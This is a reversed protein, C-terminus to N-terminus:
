HPKLADIRQQFRRLKAEVRESHSRLADIDDFFQQVQLPHPLLRSEELLFDELQRRLNHGSTKLWHQGSRLGRGIQHGVVDGFAEALPREWDLDLDALIDRLQLLAQTDGNVTVDGNILAAGPDSATAIAAFERWRGRLRTTAAAGDGPLLQLRRGSVGIGLQLDPEKLELIFRCGELEGLRVATASDLSLARNVMNELSSVALGRLLLKM